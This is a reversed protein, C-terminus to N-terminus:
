IRRSSRTGGHHGRDHPDSRDDQLGNNNSFEDDSDDSDDNKVKRLYRSSKQHGPTPHQESLLIGDVARIGQLFSM